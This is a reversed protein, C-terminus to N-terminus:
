LATVRTSGEQFGAEDVVAFVAVAEQGELFDGCYKASPTEGLWARM